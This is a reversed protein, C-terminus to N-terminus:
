RGWDGIGLGKEHVCLEDNDAAAGASVGGRKEGSVQSHLDSQDIELRPEAANKQQSAANRRFGQQM